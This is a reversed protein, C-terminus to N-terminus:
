AKISQRRNDFYENIFGITAVFKGSEVQIDFTFGPSANSLLSYIKYLGSGGEKTNLQSHEPNWKSKERRVIEEPDEEIEKSFNNSIKIYNGSEESIHQIIAPSAPDGCKFSNELATLISIFLARAERYNLTLVSRGQTFELERDKHGYISNFSSVAAELVVGLRELNRSDDAGVFRFWNLVLEIENTFFSRANKIEQLLDLVPVNRRAGAIDVELKLIADSVKSSLYDNILTQAAKAGEGALEWMYEILSSFFEENNDAKDAIQSVRVLRRFYPIFDFIKNSEKHHIEVKFRENVEELISDIKGSFEQLAIDIEDIITHSVFSYQHRWHENPLYCGNKQNTILHTKEFCSRLQTIFVVHRIEASLYKDLGYNENLAFDDVAQVFISYMLETKKNSAIARAESLALVNSSNLLEAPSELPTMEESSSMSKAQEFLNEYIHKRHSELAQVDVFLKGSEIKARLKESLLSELVKDKEQKLRESDDIKRKILFDIIAVREHVVEDNSSYQRLNDLQAPICINKLFFLDRNDFATQSEYLISPRYTDNFEMMEEFLEKKEEEFAGSNERDYIDYIILCSIFTANDLKPIDATAICLDKIPLFIYSVNNKLYEDIAFNIAAVYDGKEFYISSRLTLYDSLVPFKSPEILEPDDMETSYRTARHFPLQTIQQSSLKLKYDKNLAKPTNYKGLCLTLKRSLEIIDRPYLKQLTSLFHFNLSKAWSEARFKVCIKVLDDIIEKTKPDCQLLGGFESAIVDYFTAREHLTNTYIKCKAYIELVSFVAENNEQLLNQVNSIVASYKGNTYDDVIKSVEPAVEEKPDIISSLENDELLSAIERIQHLIDVPLESKAMLEGIVSKFLVYQDIISEYWENALYTLEVKRELDFNIPLYKCSELAGNEIAKDIGSNRYEKIRDKLTSIFFSIASGESMLQYTQVLPKVDSVPFKNPIDLILQKTDSKELEKVIHIHQEIAWWSKSLDDINALAAKAGEADGQLIKINVLKRLSNFESLIPQNKKFLGFLWHLYNNPTMRSSVNLIDYHDRDKGYVPNFIKPLMKNSAVDSILGTLNFSDFKILETAVRSIVKRETEGRNQVFIKTDLIMNKGRTKKQKGFKFM